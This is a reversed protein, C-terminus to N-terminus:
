SLASAAAWALAEHELHEPITGAANAWDVPDGGGIVMLTAMRGAADLAAFTAGGTDEVSVVNGAGDATEIRM